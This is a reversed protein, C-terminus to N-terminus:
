IATYDKTYNAANNDNCKYKSRVLLKMFQNSRDFYATFCMVNNDHMQM